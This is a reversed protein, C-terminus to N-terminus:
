DRAQDEADAAAADGLGVFGVAHGLGFAAVAKAFNEVDDDLSQGLRAEGIVAAVV